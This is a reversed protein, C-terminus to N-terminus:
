APCSIIRAVIFMRILVFFKRLAIKEAAAKAIIAVTIVAHPSSVPGVDGLVGVSTCAVRAVAVDAVIVHVGLGLFSPTM